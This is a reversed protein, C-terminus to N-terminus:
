ALDHEEPNIVEVKSNAPKTFYDKSRAIEMARDVLKDTDGFPAKGVLEAKAIDVPVLTRGYIWKEVRDPDPQAIGIRSLRAVFRAWNEVRGDEFRVQLYGVYDCKDIECNIEEVLERRLAAEMNEDEPDIHGGTIRGDGNKYRVLIREDDMVLVAHVRDFKNNEPKCDLYLKCVVNEM